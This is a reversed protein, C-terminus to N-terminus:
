IINLYNKILVKITPLSLNYDINHNVFNLLSDFHIESNSTIWTNIAYLKIFKIRNQETNKITSPSKFDDINDLPDFIKSLEFYYNENTIDELIDELEKLISKEKLLKISNDETNIYTTLVEDDKPLTENKIKNKKNFLLLLVSLLILLLILTNM